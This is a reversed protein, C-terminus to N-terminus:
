KIYIELRHTYERYPYYVEKLRLLPFRAKYWQDIHVSVLIGDDALLRGIADYAAGLAHGIYQPYIVGTIVVLDFPRDLLDPLDFLSAQRFSIRDSTHRGAQAIAESSIDIGIIEQGPLDRTIFGHGCGVDLVRRYERQPLESLLVAKRKIDEPNSEYGWPDPQGYWRELEEPAQIMHNNDEM